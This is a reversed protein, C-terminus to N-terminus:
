MIEILTKEMEEIDKEQEDLIKCIAAAKEKKNEPSYKKNLPEQKSISLVRAELINLNKSLSISMLDEVETNTLGSINWQFCDSNDNKFIKSNKTVRSGICYCKFKRYYKIQLDKSMNPNLRLLLKLETKNTDVREKKKKIAQKLEEITYNEEKRAM